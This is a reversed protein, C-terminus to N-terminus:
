ENNEKNIDTILSMMYDIYDRKTSVSSLGFESLDYLKDECCSEFEKRITEDTVPNESCHKLFQEQTKMQAADKLWEPINDKYDEKENEM